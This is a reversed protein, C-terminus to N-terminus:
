WSVHRPTRVPKAKNEPRNIQVPLSNTLPYNKSLRIASSVQIAVQQLLESEQRTYVHGSRRPGLLLFGFREGETELPISVRVDGKWHGYTHITQFKDESGLNIAGNEAQLCRAAEDLLRYTIKHADNMQIYMQVQEGFARLERTQDPLEKFQRDVWGHLRSKIPDFLSAVILTTIIIAADSKDGTFFVFLKQSLGVLATFVGALIATLLGYVITRNVISDIEWLRYRIIAIGVSLPFLLLPPLILAINFMFNAHFIPAFFWITLLGFALTSGMLVIRAQRRIVSMTSRSRYVMMGLFIIISLGVFRYNVGWTTYYDWPRSSDYIVVLNWIILAASFIYPVALVWGHTQAPKWEEPFRMALSILAGGTLCLATVWIVTGLHTTSLDFIIACVISTCVCFFALARGPRTRGRLRYIWIGIGLYSLGVLYPLWFLITLDKFSFQTLTISPYLHEMRDPTESFISVQDGINYTALLRNFDAPTNVINGGIRIIYQGPTIGAQRGSWNDGQNENVVLTQEIFFGPFPINRWWMALIPVIIYILVALAFTALTSWRSLKELEDPNGRELM